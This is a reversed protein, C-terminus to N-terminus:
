PRSVVTHPPHTYDDLIYSSIPLVFSMLRLFVLFLATRPVMAVFCMGLLVFFFM